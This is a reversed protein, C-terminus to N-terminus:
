IAMKGLVVMALLGLICVTFMLMVAIVFRQAPTMGLIRGGSSHRPAAASTGAAEQFQAEDEYFPSSNAQERLNDFM